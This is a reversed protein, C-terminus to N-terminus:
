RQTSSIAGTWVHIPQQDARVQPELLLFHGDRSVDQLRAPRPLRFLREPAGVTLSPVTTVTATMMTDDGIVFYIRSGDRSFRAPGSAGKAAMVPVSTVGVTSIYVDRRGKETGASFSVLSGDPSLRMDTARLPGPLLPAPSARGDLSLRFMRFGNPGREVYAVASGDSFVDMALQQHRPPLLQEHNGTAM